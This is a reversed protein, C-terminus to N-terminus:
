WCQYTVAFQLVIWTVKEEKTIQTYLRVPTMRPGPKKKSGCERTHFCTPEIQTLQRVCFEIVQRLAVSLGWNTHM